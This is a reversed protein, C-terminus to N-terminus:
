LMDRLKLEHIKAYVSGVPRNISVAIMGPKKGKSYMDILIQTEDKEWPTHVTREAEIVDARNLRVGCIKKIEAVSKTTLQALIKIQETPYKAQRYSARIEGDTM